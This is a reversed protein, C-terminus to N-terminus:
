RQLRERTNSIEETWKEWTTAWVLYSAARCNRGGLRSFYTRTHAEEEGNETVQALFAQHSRADSPVGSRMLWRTEISSPTSQRMWLHSNSIVSHLLKMPNESKQFARSKYYLHPSFNMASELPSLYPNAYSEKRRFNNTGINPKLEPTGPNASYFWARVYIVSNNRMWPEFGESDWESHQAPTDKEKVTIDVDTGSTEQDTFRIPGTTMSMAPNDSHVFHIPQSVPTQPRSDALTPRRWRWLSFSSSSLQPLMYATIKYGLNDPDTATLAVFLWFLCYIGGSETLIVLIREVNTRRNKPIGLLGKIQKRYVWSKIGFLLTAVINTFMLPLILTLTRPGTPLFKTSGFLFLGIFSMDTTVGVNIRGFVNESLRINRVLLASDSPYLGLNFVEIITYALQEIVQINSCAFMFLVAAILTHRAPLTTKHTWMHYLAISVLTTYIGHLFFQIATTILEGQLTSIVSAPLAGLQSPASSM